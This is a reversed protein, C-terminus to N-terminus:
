YAMAPSTDGTSSDLVKATGGTVPQIRLDLASSSAGTGYIVYKNDPTFVKSDSLLSTTTTLKTVKPWTGTVDAVFLDLAASSTGAGFTVMTGDDNVAQDYIYWLGSSPKTFTTVPVPTSATNMDFYYMNELNASSGGVEGFFFLNSGTRGARVAGSSGVYSIYMGKTIDKVTITAVDVAKIDSLTGSTGTEGYQIYYLYKGNPSSWGGYPRAKGGGAFPRTTGGMKTLNVIVGTSVKYHFMDMTSNSDGAWFLLDDDTLWEPSTFTDVSSGFNSSTSVEVAPKAAATDRVYLHYFSSDYKTYAIMKGTKSMRIANYYYMFSRYTGNNYYSGPSSSINTVTGTADDIVM